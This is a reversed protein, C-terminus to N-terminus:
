LRRGVMPGSSEGKPEEGESELLRLTDPASTVLGEMGEGMRKPVCSAAEALVMEDGPLALTRAM